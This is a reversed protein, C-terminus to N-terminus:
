EPEVEAPPHLESPMSDSLEVNPDRRPEPMSLVPLAPAAAVAARVTAEARTLERAQDSRNRNTIAVLVGSLALLAIRMTDSLDGGAAEVFAAVGASLAAAGYGVWTQLGKSVKAPTVPAVEISGVELVAGPEGGQDYTM